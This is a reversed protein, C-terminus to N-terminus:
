WFTLGSVDPYLRMSFFYIRATLMKHRSKVRCQGSHVRRETKMPNAFGCLTRGIHLNDVKRWSFQYNLVGIISNYWLCPLLFSSVSNKDQNTEPVIWLSSPSQSLNCVIVQREFKGVNLWALGLTLQNSYNKKKLNLNLKHLQSFLDRLKWQSLYRINSLSRNWRSLRGDDDLTTRLSRSCCTTM